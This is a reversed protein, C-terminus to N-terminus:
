FEEITEREDDQVFGGHLTATFGDIQLEIINELQDQLVSAAIEAAEARTDASIAATWNVTFDNKAM